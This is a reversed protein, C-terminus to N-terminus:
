FHYKELIAINILYEFKLKKFINKVFKTCYQYM